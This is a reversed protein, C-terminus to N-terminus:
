GMRCSPFSLGSQAHLLSAPLRLCRLSLGVAPVFLRGSRPAQLFLDAEEEPQMDTQRDRQELEWNAPTPASSRSPSSALSRGGPPCAM